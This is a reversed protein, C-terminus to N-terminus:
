QRVPPHAVLQALTVFHLPHLDHLNPLVQLFFRLVYVSLNKSASFLILSNVKFGVLAYDYENERSIAYMHDNDEEQNNPTAKFVFLQTQYCIQSIFFKVKLNRSFLKHTCSYNTKVPCNEM